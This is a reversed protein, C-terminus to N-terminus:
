AEQKNKGKKKLKASAADAAELDTLIRMLGQCATIAGSAAAANAKVRELEEMARAHGVQYLELQAELMERTIM